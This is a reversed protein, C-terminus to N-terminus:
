VDTHVRHSGTSLRDDRPPAASLQGGLPSVLQALCQPGDGFGGSARVKPRGIRLRQFAHVAQNVAQFLAFRVSRM